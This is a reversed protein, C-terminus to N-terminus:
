HAIAPTGPPTVLMNVVFKQGDATVDFAHYQPHPTRIAFLARVEGVEFDAGNTDVDAAMIQGDSSLFYLEKGDRRWRAQTGGDRSVLAKRTSATPPFAAVYVDARGFETSSYAVWKGDPSFAAWFETGSSRQYSFPKRDGFLPLVELHNGPVRGSTVYLLYKGDTSWSVPWKADMDVLLPRGIPGTPPTSAAEYLDLGGDRGSNFVVSRGDHSWIAWNEDAADAAFATHRGTAVDVFWIDRTPQEVDSRVGVAIRDGQPSLEVNGYDAMNGIVGLKKGARDFWTLQSRIFAPRQVAVRRVSGFVCLACLAVGLARGPPLTM